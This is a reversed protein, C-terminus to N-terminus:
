LATNKCKTLTPGQLSQATNGTWTNKCYKTNARM